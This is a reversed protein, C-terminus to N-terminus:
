VFSLPRHLGLVDRSAGDGTPVSSRVTRAHDILAARDVERYNVAQAAVVRRPDPGVVRDLEAFAAAHEVEAEALMRVAERARLRAKERAQTAEDAKVYVLKQPM